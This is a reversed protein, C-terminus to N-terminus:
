HLAGNVARWKVEEFMHSLNELKGSHIYKTLKKKKPPPPLPM